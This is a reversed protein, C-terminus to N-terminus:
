RLSSPYLKEAIEGFLTATPTTFNSSLNAATAIQAGNARDYFTETSFGFIAGDHGVWDGFGLLGLGYGLPPGGGNPLAGFHLRLAQLRHSLLTGRALARGWRRLDGVTSVM